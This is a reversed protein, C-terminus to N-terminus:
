HITVPGEGDPWRDPPDSDRSSQPCEPAREQGGRRRELGELISEWYLPENFLSEPPLMAWYMEYSKRKDTCESLAEAIRVAEAHIEPTVRSLHWDSLERYRDEGIERSLLSLVARGKSQWLPDCLICPGRRLWHWCWQTSLVLAQLEGGPQLASSREPGPGCQREWRAAREVGLALLIRSLEPSPRWLVAAALDLCDMGADNLLEGLFDGTALPFSFSSERNM